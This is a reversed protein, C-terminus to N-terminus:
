EKTYLINKGNRLVQNWTLTVKEPIGDHGSVPGRM